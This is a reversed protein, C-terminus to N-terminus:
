LLGGYALTSRETASESGFQRLVSTMITKLHDTVCHNKKTMLTKFDHHLLNKGM